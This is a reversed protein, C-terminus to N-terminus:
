GTRRKAQEDSTEDSQRPRNLLCASRSSAPRGAPLPFPFCPPVPSSVILHILRILHVSRMPCAVPTDILRHSPAPRILHILRMLRFASPSPTRRILCALLPSPPYPSSIIRYHASSIPCPSCTPMAALRTALLIADHSRNSGDPSVILRSAPRSATPRHSPAPLPAHHFSIDDYGTDCTIPQTATDDPIRYSIIVPRPRSSSPVFVLHRRYPLCPVTDIVVDSSMM